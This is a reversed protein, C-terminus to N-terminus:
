GNIPSLAVAAPLPWLPGALFPHGAMFCSSRVAAHVPKQAAM